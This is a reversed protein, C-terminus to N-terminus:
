FHERFMNVLERKKIGRICVPNKSRLWWAQFCVLEPRTRSWGRNGTGSALRMQSKLIYIHIYTHIEGCKCRNWSTGGFQAEKTRLRDIRSSFRFFVRPFSLARPIDQKTYFAVNQLRLTRIFAVSPISQVKYLSQAIRFHICKRVLKPMTHTLRESM